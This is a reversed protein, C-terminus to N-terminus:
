PVVLVDASVKDGCELNASPYAGTFRFGTEVGSTHEVFVKLPHTSRGPRIAKFLKGDADGVNATVDKNGIFVTIVFGVTPGVFQRRVRIDSTVNSGNRYRVIFTTSGGPGIEAGVNQQPSPMPNLIGDGVFADPTVRIRGDAADPPLSPCGKAGAPAVAVGMLSAALVAAMATRTLWRRATM